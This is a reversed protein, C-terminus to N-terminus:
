HKFLAIVVAAVTFVVLMITMYVLWRTLRNLSKQTRADEVSSVVQSTTLLLERLGAERAQTNIALSTLRQRAIESNEPINTFPKPPRHVPLMVPYLPHWFVILNTVIIAVNDCFSAIDLSIGLLEDRLSVVLDSSAVSEIWGLKARVNRMRSELTWFVEEIAQEVLYRSIEEGRIELLVVNPTYKIGAELYPKSDYASAEAENYALVFDRENTGRARVLGLYDPEELKFADPGYITSMELNLLEMYRGQEKFPVSKSFAVLSCRPIRSVDGAMLKGPMREKLWDLCRDTIEKRVNGVRSGRAVWLAPTVKLRSFAENEELSLEEASLPADNRWAVELCAAEDKTLVFTFVVATTSLGLAHVEGYIREIGKPLDVEGHGGDNGYGGDPAPDSTLMFGETFWTDTERDEVISRAHPWEKQRGKKGPFVWEIPKPEPRSEAEAQFKLGSGPTLEIPKSGLACILSNVDRGVYVEAIRISKLTVHEEDPLHWVDNEKSDEPSVEEHVPEVHKKSSIRPREQGRPGAAAAEKEGDLEAHPENVGLSAGQGSEDGGPAKEDTQVEDATAAPSNPRGAEVDAGEGSTEGNDSM